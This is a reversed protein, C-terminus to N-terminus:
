MYQVNPCFTFHKNNHLVRCKQKDQSYFILILSSFLRKMIHYLTFLWTPPLCVSTFKSHLPLWFWILVDFSISFMYSLSNRELCKCTGWQSGTTQIFILSSCSWSDIIFWVTSITCYIHAVTSKSPQLEAELPAFMTHTLRPARLWRKCEIFFSNRMNLRASGNGHNSALPKWEQNVEEGQASKKTSRGRGGGERASMVVNLELKEERSQKEEKPVNTAGGTEQETGGRLKHQGWLAKSEWHFGSM